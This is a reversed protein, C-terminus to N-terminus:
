FAPFLSIEDDNGYNGNKSTHDYYYLKMVDDIYTPILDRFPFRISVVRRNQDERIYYKIKQEIMKLIKPVLYFCICNCNYFDFDSRSFDDVFFKLNRELNKISTQKNCEDILDQNIDIGIGKCNRMEVATFLIRGDGCGLDILKDDENIKLLEIVRKVTSYTSSVFPVLQKKPADPENLYPMWEEEM